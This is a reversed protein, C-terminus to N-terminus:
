LTSRTKRSDRCGYIIPSSIHGPRPTPEPHTQEWGPLGIHVLKIDNM